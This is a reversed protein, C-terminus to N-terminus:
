LRFFQTLAPAFRKTMRLMVISSSLSSFGNWIFVEAKEAIEMGVTMGVYSQEADPQIDLLSMADAWGDKRLADKLGYWGWGAAVIDQLLQAESVLLIIDESVTGDVLIITGPQSQRDIRDSAGTTELLTRREDEVNSLFDQHEITKLPAWSYAM